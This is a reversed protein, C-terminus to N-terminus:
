NHLYGAGADLYEVGRLPCLIRRQTVFTRRQTVVLKSMYQKKNVTTVKTYKTDQPVSIGDWM